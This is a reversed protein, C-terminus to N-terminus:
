VVVFEAATMEPLAPNGAAPHPVFVAFQVAEGAGSGDADYFLAGSDTDYIIRQEATTAVGDANAVFADASLAGTSLTTFIADDLEIRDAWPGGRINDWFDVITDVNTRADLPDGFHFRDAGAGGQLVDNGAGGDLFSGRAWGLLHDNGDGGYLRVELAPDWPQKEIWFASLWNDGANGRGEVLGTGDLLRLSEVNDPLTYSIRTDVTDFEGNAQEIVVDGADDVVYTDNGGGGTMNDAGTGGDLYDAYRSGLLHDNGGEGFLRIQTGEAPAVDVWAANLWNNAANGHADVAGAVGILRLSEVNDTLTYSISSNVTDFGDGAQEIVRDGVADVVYTDNGQGGTMNDAGAGGDLYDGYRSGLLHDNGSEGYLRIQTGAAPAVDVWFANLWNNGANGHADVAGTVGILRLSEVNDTLRYSISSNVTDFGGNAQEIVVDGADEVVYTDNGGGGTMSDAGSGGDLYDGYRSGLLHDNGGEGYLRIQTGAAPAVTVWAANLWNNGANGYADVAGTVGILRLSEVNETLRYSISSNVTDFGAGVQENVVDGADDVVYSDNGYGGQMQDAGSGGDLLDDGYASFLIDAGAMGSLSVSSFNDLAQIFNDLENGTGTFLGEGVFVLNEVNASLIYSEAHTEVTDIGEGVNEIIVDGADPDIYRDDGQGGAMYDRGAGGDIVDDGAGGSLRDDGDGGNLRDDYSGAVIQDNWQSGVFGIREVNKLETGQGVFVSVADPAENAEFSIPRLSSSFDGYFFDIGGRGDFAIPADGYLEVSDNGPTLRFEIFEVNKVTLYTTDRWGFFIFGASDQPGTWVQSTGNGESWDIILRDYGGGGDVLVNGGINTVLFENDEPGGLFDTM